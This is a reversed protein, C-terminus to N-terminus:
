DFVCRHCALYHDENKLPCSWTGAQARTAQHPNRRAQLDLGPDAPACKERAPKEGLARDEALTHQRLTCRM